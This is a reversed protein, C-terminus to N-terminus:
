CLTFPEHLTRSLFETWNATSYQSDSEGEWCPNWIGSRIGHIFRKCSTRFPPASSRVPSVPGDLFLTGSSPWATANEPHPWPSASKRRRRACPAAGRLLAGMRPASKGVLDPDPNVHEVDLLPHTRM